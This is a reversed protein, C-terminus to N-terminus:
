NHPAVYPMPVAIKAHTRPISIGPALPDITQDARDLTALLAAYDGETHSSHWLEAASQLPGQAGMIVSWDDVSQPENGSYADSADGFATEANALLGGQNVVRWWAEFRDGDHAVLYQYGQEFRDRYWNTSMKLIAVARAPPSQFQSPDTLPTPDTPAETTAEATAEATDSPPATTAPAAAPASATASETGVAPASPTSSTAGPLPSPTGCAGVGLAFAVLLAALRGLRSASRSARPARRCLRKEM